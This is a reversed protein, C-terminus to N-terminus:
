MSRPYEHCIIHVAVYGIWGITGSILMIIKRCIILGRGTFKANSLLNHHYACM